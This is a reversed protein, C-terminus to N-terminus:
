KSNIANRARRLWCPKGVSSVHTGAAVHKSAAFSAFILAYLISINLIVCLILSASFLMLIFLELM